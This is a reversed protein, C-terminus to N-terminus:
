EDRSISSSTRLKSSTIWRVEEFKSRPLISDNKCGWFTVAFFVSAIGSEIRIGWANYFHKLKVVEFNIGNNNQPEHVCTTTTCRNWRESIPVGIQRKLLIQVLFICDGREWWVRRVWERSICLKKLWRHCCDLVFRLDVHAAFSMFNDADETRFSDKMRMTIHARCVDSEHESLSELPLMTRFLVPLCPISQDVSDADFYRHQRHLLGFFEVLSVDRANFTVYTAPAYSVSHTPSNLSSDMVSSSGVCSVSSWLPVNSFRSLPNTFTFVTHRDTPTSILQHTPTLVDTM